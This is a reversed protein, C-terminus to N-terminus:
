KFDGPEKSENNLIEIEETKKVIRKIIDDFFEVTIKINELIEINKPDNFNEYNFINLLGLLSAIPRRVQHSQMFAIQRLTTYQLKIKVNSLKTETIDHAIGHIGIPKGEENFDFDTQSHIWRVTGDKRIIRHVFSTHQMTTQQQNIIEMVDSLDDPHIFSIWFEFTQKNDEPKLGYIKLAEDSWEAMCTSFDLDWNGLHAMAQAEKMRREGHILRNESDVMETLDQVIGFVSIPKGQDDIEFQTDLWLYRISGDKRLIRHKISSVGLSAWDKEVKRKVFNLDEPHVFALWSEITQHNEEVPIGFIRCQEDSWTVIGTSFDKEWSGIHALAQAKNLSNLAKELKNELSTTSAQSKNEIPPM